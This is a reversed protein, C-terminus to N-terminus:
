RLQKAATIMDSLEGKTIASSYRIGLDDAFRRQADTAPDNRWKETKYTRQYLTFFVIAIVIGAWMGAPEDTPSRGAAFMALACLLLLVTRLITFLCGHM